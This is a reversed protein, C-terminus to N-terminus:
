SASVTLQNNVSKVESVGKVIEAAREKAAANPVPGTLTVVGDKTDVDIRIASLNSDAALGANVRATIQGDDIKDGMTSAANSVATGATGAAGMVATSADRTAQSADQRAETAAPTTPQTTTSTTSTTSTSTDAVRDGCAGLALLAALSTATLLHRSTLKNM